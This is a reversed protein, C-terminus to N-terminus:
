NSRVSNVRGRLDEVKAARKAIREDKSPILRFWALVSRGIIYAVLAPLVLAALVPWLVVGVFIGSFTRWKDETANPGEFEIPWEESAASVVCVLLAIIAAIAIVASYTFGMWHQYEFM